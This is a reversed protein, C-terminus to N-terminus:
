SIERLFFNSSSFDLHYNSESFYIVIPGFEGNITHRKRNGGGWDLDGWFTVEVTVEKPGDVPIEALNLPEKFKFGHSWWDYISILRKELNSYKLNTGVLRSEIEAKIQSKIREEM